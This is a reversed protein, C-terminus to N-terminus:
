WSVLLAYVVVFAAARAFDRVVLALLKSDDLLIVHHILAEELVDVGYLISQWFDCLCVNPREPDWIVVSALVEKSLSLDGLDYFKEFLRLLVQEEHRPWLSDSLEVRCDLGHSERCFM